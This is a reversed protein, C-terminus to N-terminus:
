PITEFLLTTPFCQADLAVFPSVPPCVFHSHSHPGPWCPWGRGALTAAAWQRTDLVALGLTPSTSPVAAGEGGVPGGGGGLPGAGFPGACPASVDRGAHRRCPRCPCGWVGVARLALGVAGGSWPSMGEGGVHCGGGERRDLVALGLTLPVSPMVPGEGPRCPWGRGSLM